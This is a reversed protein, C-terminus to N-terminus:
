YALSVYLGGTSNHNKDLINEPLSEESFLTVNDLNSVSNQPSIVADSGNVVHCVCMVNVVFWVVSLFTKFVSLNLQAFCKM